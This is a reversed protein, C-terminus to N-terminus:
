GAALTVLAYIGALVTGILGIFELWLILTDLWAPTRQHNRSRKSHM